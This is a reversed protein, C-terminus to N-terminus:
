NGAFALIKKMRHNVGSKTLPPNLLGGLETLSLDPNELRLIAIERLDDPLSDLGTMKQIKQIACIQEVSANITRSLNSTEGNASRNVDNRIEKEIKINILEMQSKYAGLFSLIDAIIESNKVYAVYKNKREIRHFKFDMEMFLNILEDCLLFKSTVIEFNYNKMPDSVTGAGLFAGRLFERKCCPRKVISSSVHYNVDGTLSNLLDLDYLLQAIKVNDSISATYKFNKDSLQKVDAEIGLLRSLEVFSGMVDQNDTVFKIENKSIINAGFLILGSFRAKICCRDVVETRYIEEKVRRSFSKVCGSKDM